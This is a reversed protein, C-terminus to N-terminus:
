GDSKPVVVAATSAAVRQLMGVHQYKCAKKSSRIFVSKVGDVDNNLCNLVWEVPLKHGRSKRVDYACGNLGINIFDNLIELIPRDARNTIHFDRTYLCKFM